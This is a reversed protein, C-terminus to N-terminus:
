KQIMNAPTHEIEFMSRWTSRLEALLAERKPELAALEELAMARLDPDKEFGRAQGIEEEVKQYERYRGVVRELDSYSKAVQRYRDPDAAIAPDAMQAALGDFRAAITELRDRLEM